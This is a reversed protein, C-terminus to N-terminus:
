LIAQKTISKIKDLTNKAKDVEHILTYFGYECYLCSSNDPAISKSINICNRSEKVLDIVEKNKNDDNLLSCIFLQLTIAEVMKYYGNIFSPNLEQCKKIHLRAEIICAYCKNILSKDKKKQNFEYLEKERNPLDNLSNIELERYIDRIIKSAYNIQVRDSNPYYKLLLKLIRDLENNIEESFKIDNLQTLTVVQHNLFKMNNEDIQLAINFHNRAYELHKKSISKHESQGNNRLETEYMRKEAIGSWLYILGYLNSINGTRDETMTNFKKLLSLAYNIDEQALFPNIRISNQIKLYLSNLSELYAFQKNLTSTNSDIVKSALKIIEDYKDPIYENHPSRMIYHNIIGIKTVVFYENYEDDEKSIYDIFQEIIDYYFDSNEPSILQVSSINVLAKIYQESKELRSSTEEIKKVKDDAKKERYISLIALVISSFTVILTAISLTSAQMDAVSLELPKDCYTRAIDNYSIMKYIVVSLILFAISIILSIIIGVTIFSDNKIEFRQVCLILSIFFCLVTLIVSLYLLIDVYNSELYKIVKEDGVFVLLLISVSVFIAGLVIILIIYKKFRNKKM